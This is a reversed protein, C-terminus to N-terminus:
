HGQRGQQLLPMPADYGERQVQGQDEKRSSGGDDGQRSHLLLPVEFRPQRPWDTAESRARSGRRRPRHHRQCQVVPAYATAEVDEEYEFEYELQVASTRNLGPETRSSSTRMTSPSGQDSEAARGDLAARMEQKERATTAAPKKSSDPKKRISSTSKRTQNTAM